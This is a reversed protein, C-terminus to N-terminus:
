GGCGGGGCGGGGGGGGDGGGCGAGASSGGGCSSTTGGGATVVERQIEAQQAFTPDLAWLSATGYIAVSMALGASGYVTYSPHSAPALHRSRQRLTRLARDAARTRRPVRFFLVTALVALGCVIIVLYWVPRGNVLGAAIRAVGLASLAALLLPGLRLAARRDPGVVLDHRALGDRLEGLARTVWEAHRLQRAPYHQSAAYHVARDLPTAGPPPSGEATLGGDTQVGLAGQYRLSSVSAWVARDAGGNLYAVQEPRLQDAPPASRGALTSWRHILVGTVVVVTALLYLMLFTRSPVGWTDFDAALETM